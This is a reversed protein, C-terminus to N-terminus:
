GTQSKFQRSGFKSRGYIVVVLSIMFLSLLYLSNALPLKFIGAIFIITPSAIAIAFRVVVVESFQGRARFVTIVFEVILSFCLMLGMAYFLPAALEWLNGLILAGYNKPIASIFLVWLASSFLLLSMVRIERSSIKGNSLGLSHQIVLNVVLVSLTIPSLAYLAGNYAAVGESEFVIWVTIISSLATFGNLLSDLLLRKRRNADSSLIQGLENISVRPANKGCVIFLSFMLACALVLFIATVPVTVLDFVVLALLTILTGALSLDAGLARFSERQAIAVYRGFDLFLYLPVCILFLFIASENIENNSIGIAVFCIMLPISLVLAGLRAGSKELESFRLHNNSGLLLPLGFVSRSALVTFSLGIWMTTILAFDNTSTVQAVILIFILNAASSVIQDLTSIRMERITLRDPM